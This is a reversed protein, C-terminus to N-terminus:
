KKNFPDGMVINVSHIYHLIGHAEEVANTYCEM